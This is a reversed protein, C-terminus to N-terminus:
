MYIQIIDENMLISFPTIKHCDIRQKIVKLMVFVSIPRNRIWYCTNNCEKRQSIYITSCHIQRHIDHIQIHETYIYM